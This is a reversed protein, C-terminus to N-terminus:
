ATEMTEERHQAYREWLDHARTSPLRSDGATHWDHVLHGTACYCSKSFNATLVIEPRLSCIAVGFWWSISQIDAQGLGHLLCRTYLRSGQTVNLNLGPCGRVVDSVQTRM